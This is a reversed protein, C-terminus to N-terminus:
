PSVYVVAARAKVAVAAWTCVANFVASVPSAPALTVTAAPVVPQSMVKPPVTLLCVM